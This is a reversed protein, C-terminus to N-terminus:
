NCPPLIIKPNDPSGPSNEFIDKIPLCEPIVLLMVFESPKSSTQKLSKGIELPEFPFPLM